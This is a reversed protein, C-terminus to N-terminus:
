TWLKNMKCIEERFCSVTVVSCPYCVVTLHNPKHMPNITREGIPSHKEWFPVLYLFDADHLLERQMRSNAQIKCLDVARILPDRFSIQLM